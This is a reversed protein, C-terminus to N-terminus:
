RHVMGEKASFRFGQFTQFIARASIGRVLRFGAVSILIFSQSILAQDLGWISVQSYYDNINNVFHLGEVTDAGYESMLVPKDHKTNWAIAEDVVRSTIMDIKGPNSYWGNYRNFSIIDLHKAQLNISYKPMILILPTKSKQPCSIPKSVAKDDYVSVAISATIPRNPDLSKTFNAM